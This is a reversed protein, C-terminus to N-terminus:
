DSTSQAHTTTTRSLVLTQRWTNSDGTFSFRLKIPSEVRDAWLFAIEDDHDDRGLIGARMTMPISRAKFWEATRADFKSQGEPDQPAGDMYSVLWAAAPRLVTLSDAQLPYPAPNVVSIRLEFWGAQLPSVQLSIVPQVARDQRWQTEHAIWAAWAAIVLAAFILWESPQLGLM